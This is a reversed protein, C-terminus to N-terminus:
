WDHQAAMASLHGGDREARVSPQNGTGAVVADDPDPIPRVSYRNSSSSAFGDFDTHLPSHAAVQGGTVTSRPVLTKMALILLLIDSRDTAIVTRQLQRDTTPRDVAEVFVLLWAVSETLADATFARPHQVKGWPCARGRILLRTLVTHGPSADRPVPISNSACPGSSSDAARYPIRAVNM